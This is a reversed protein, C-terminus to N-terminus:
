DPSSKGDAVQVNKEEDTSLNLHFSHNLFHKSTIQIINLFKTLMFHEKKPFSNIPLM